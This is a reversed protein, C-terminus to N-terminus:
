MQWNYVSIHMKIASINWKHQAHSLNCLRQIRVETSYCPIKSLLIVSLKKVFETNPLQVLIIYATM